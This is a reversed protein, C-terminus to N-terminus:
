LGLKVCPKCQRCNELKILVFSNWLDLQQVRHIDYVVKSTPVRHDLHCFASRDPQIIGSAMWISWPWWLEIVLEHLLGNMTFNFEAPDSCPLRWVLNVWCHSNSFFHFSLTVQKNDNIYVKKVHSPFLSVSNHQLSYNGQGVNFNPYRWMVAYEYGKMSPYKNSGLGVM